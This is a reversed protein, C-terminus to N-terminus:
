QGHREKFLEDSVSTPGDGEDQCPGQMSQNIENERWSEYFCGFCVHEYREDYGSADGVRESEEQSFLDGCIRCRM